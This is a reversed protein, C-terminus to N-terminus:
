FINSFYDYSQEGRHGWADTYGSDGRTYRYTNNEEKMIFYAGSAKMYGYYNPPGSGDIDSIKYESDVTQVAPFNDVEITGEVVQSAPFNSVAVGSVILQDVTVPFGSLAEWSLTEPNWIYNKVIMGIGTNLTEM